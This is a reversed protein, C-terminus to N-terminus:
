GETARLWQAYQQRLQELEAPSLDRKGSRHLHRELQDVIAEADRHSQADVYVTTRTCNISEGCIPCLKWKQYRDVYTFARCGPCRIVLYM